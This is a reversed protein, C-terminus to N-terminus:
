EKSDKNAIEEQLIEIFREAELPLIHSPNSVVLISFRLDGLPIDRIGYMKSVDEPMPVGISYALGEAILKRRLQSSNIMLTRDPSLRMIGKMHHNYVQSGSITDVLIDQELERCDIHEQHYLRHKPGISAVAPVTGLATIQLNQAKISNELELLRPEHCLLVGLDIKNLAVGDLSDELTNAEVSFIVDQRDKYEAILRLYSNAVVETNSGSFVVRRCSAQPEKIMLQYEACIRSARNIIKLGQSTPIMGNKTRTFIQCGLENELNTIAISLSSQALYLNQAAATISGTNYVELLYKLQQFTM